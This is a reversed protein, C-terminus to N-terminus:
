PTTLVFTGTFNVTAQVTGDPTVTAPVEVWDGLGDNATADWALLTFTAGEMGEPIQFSLIISEGSPLTTVPTTGTFLGTTMASVFSSGDPLADPLDGEEVGLLSATDGSGASFTAQDGNPLTLTIASGGLAVAEGGTVPIVVPGGAVTTGVATGTGDGGDGGEGPDECVDGVGDEDADEQGPNWDAVCNDANDGVGDGDSDAWEAPDNPFADANDGVGDGDSDTTEAPDNPFADANDGVGDGDTDAWETPDDPFADANDGVGDGDSDTTESPDNPFADCVDGVGDNDADAQAANADNPCNDGANAVGDLDADDDSNATHNANTSWPDYDVYDSVADGSGPGVGGPGDAAGWWNYTADFVTTTGDNQVGVTNNMITNENASSGGAAADDRVWIGVGNNILTSNTILVGDM